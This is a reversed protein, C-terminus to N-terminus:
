PILKNFIITNTVTKIRTRNLRHGALRRDFLNANKKKKKILEIDNIIGM